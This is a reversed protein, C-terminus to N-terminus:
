DLIDQLDPHDRLQDDIESFGNNYIEDRTKQWQKHRTAIRVFIEDLNLIKSIILRHQGNQWMMDGNRGIVVEVEHLEPFVDLDSKPLPIVGSSENLESRKKYGNNKINQFIIDYKELASVLNEASSPLQNSEKIAKEESSYRSKFRQYKKTEDWEVSHQFHNRLSKVAPREEFLERELDWDGGKVLPFINSKKPSTYKIKKPNVKYLKLPDIKADYNRNEIATKIKINSLLIYLYIPRIYTKMRTNEVFREIYYPPM